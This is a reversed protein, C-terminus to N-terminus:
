LPKVMTFGADKPTLQYGRNKYFAPLTPTEKLDDPSIIGEIRSAGFREALREMETLLASGIGQRRTPWVEVNGLHVYRDTITTGDDPDKIVTFHGYLTGCPKGDLEPALRLVEELHTGFEEQWSSDSLAAESREDLYIMLGEPAPRQGKTSTVPDIRSSGDNDSPTGSEAARAAAQLREEFRSEFSM